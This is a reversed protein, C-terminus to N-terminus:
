TKFGAHFNSPFLPEPNIFEAEITRKLGDELSHPAEFFDLEHARTSFASSSCFKRVRISSVPLKKGMLTAAIDAVWGLVLGFGYPLRLGLGKKGFLTQQVSAVLYNMDFDPKDAYNFVQSGSGREAVAELFAAVNGVYAMSKRNRGNGIMVFRGCAIQNLLNYVNGRNGEGFVVTPRVITLIRKSADGSQWDRLIDEGRYKSKGYDNLPNIAGEEDTESENLGYVAVTSTFVIRNIQKEEAVRCINHTGDVNTNYYDLKDRVDDRHVAALHIIIRGTVAHSLADYNRIDVIKTEGPFRGSLKLDIIEFPLQRDALNKCLRTGIFGSGGIVTIM